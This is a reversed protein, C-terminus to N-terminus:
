RQEDKNTTFKSTLIFGMLILFYGLYIILKSEEPFIYFYIIKSNQVLHLISTVSSSYLIAQYETETFTVKLAEKSYYYVKTSEFTIHTVILFCLITLLFKTKNKPFQIM